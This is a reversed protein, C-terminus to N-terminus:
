LGLVRLGLTVLAAIAAMMGLSAALRVWTRASQASLAERASRESDLRTEVRGMREAHQECRSPSYGALEARLAHLDARVLRVEDLVIGLPTPDSL